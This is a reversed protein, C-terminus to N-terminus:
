YFVITKDKQYNLAWVKFDKEPDERIAGKIKKDSKKWEDGIRVDLVIVGPNDLIPKLEEKTIRPVKPELAVNQFCGVLIFISTFVIITWFQRRVM